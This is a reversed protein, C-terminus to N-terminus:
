GYSLKFSGTSVNVPRPFEARMAMKIQELEDLTSWGGLDGLRVTATGHRNCRHFVPSLALLFVEM